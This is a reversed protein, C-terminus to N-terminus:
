TVEKEPEVEEEAEEEEDEDEEDDEEDDDEFADDEEDEDELEEGDTGAPLEEVEPAPTTDAEDDIALPTSLVEEDEILYRVSM